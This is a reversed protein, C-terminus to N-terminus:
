TWVVDDVPVHPAIQAIRDLGNRYLSSSLGVRDCETSISRLRHTVERVCPTIPAEPHFQSVLALSEAYADIIVTDAPSPRRREMGLHGYNSHLMDISKAYFFMATGYDTLGRREDGGKAMTEPSGYYPEITENFM